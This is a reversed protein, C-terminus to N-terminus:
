IEQVSMKLVPEISNKEQVETDKQLMYQVYSNLSRILLIPEKHVKNDFTKTRDQISYLSDHLLVLLSRLSADSAREFISKVSHGKDDNRAQHSLFSLLEFGRPESIRDSNLLIVLMIFIDSSNDSNINRILKDYYEPFSEHKPLRLIDSVRGFIRLFQLTRQFIEHRKKGEGFLRSLMMNM